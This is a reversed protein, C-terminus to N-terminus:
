GAVPTSIVIPYTNIAAGAAAGDSTLSASAISEGAVMESTEFETGGFTYTDGFYKTFSNATITLPKATIERNAATKWHSTETELVYNNQDAGGSIVVSTYTVTKGSGANADDFIATRTFSLNDSNM